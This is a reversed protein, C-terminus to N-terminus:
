SINLQFSLFPKMLHPKWLHRSQAVTKACELCHTSLKYESDSFPASFSYEQLYFLYRKLNLVM